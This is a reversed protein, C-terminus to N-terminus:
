RQLGLLDQRWSFYCTGGESGCCGGTGLTIDRMCLTQVFLLVILVKHPLHGIGGVRTEVAGALAVELLNEVSYKGERTGSVQFERLNM